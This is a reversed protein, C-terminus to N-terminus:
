AEAMEIVIELSSDEAEKLSHRFLQSHQWSSEGESGGLEAEVVLDTCGSFNPASHM